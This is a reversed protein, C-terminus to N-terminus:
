NVVEVVPWDRADIDQTEATKNVFVLWTEYIGVCFEIASFANFQSLLIIRMRAIICLHLMPKIIALYRMSDTLMLAFSMLLKKYLFM